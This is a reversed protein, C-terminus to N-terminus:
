RIPQTTLNFQILSKVHVFVFIVHKFFQFISQFIACYMSSFEVCLVDSKWMSGSTTGKTTIWIRRCKVMVIKSKTFLQIISVILWSSM